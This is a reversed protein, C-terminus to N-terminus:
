TGVGAQGYQYLYGAHIEEVFVRTALVLGLGRSAIRESNFLLGGLKELKIDECLDANKVLEGDPSQAIYVTDALLHWLLRLSVLRSPYSQKARRRRIFRASLM